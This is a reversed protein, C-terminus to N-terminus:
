KKQIKIIHSHGLETGCWAIVLRQDSMRCLAKDGGIVAGSVWGTSLKYSLSFMIINFSTFGISDAGESLYSNMLPSAAPLHM